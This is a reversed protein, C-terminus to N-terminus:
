KGQNDYKNNCIYKKKVDCEDPSKKDYNRCYNWGKGLISMPVILKILPIGVALGLRKYSKYCMSYGDMRGLDRFFGSIEDKEVDKDKFRYKVGVKKCLYDFILESIDKSAKVGEYFGIRVDKLDDLKM